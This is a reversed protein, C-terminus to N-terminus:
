IEATPGAKDLGPYLTEGKNKRELLQKRAQKILEGVKRVCEDLDTNELIHHYRQMAQERELHARQLRITQQKEDETARGALRKALETDPATLFILLADLGQQLVQAGGKVDITLLLIMNRDIAERLPGKPTGYFEGHVEAHEILEGGTLLKQFEDHSVFHYDKGEQEGDRPKRTTASVSRLCGGGDVLRQSVTTKGVGSPGSLVVLIGPLDEM